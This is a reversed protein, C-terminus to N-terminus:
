QDVELDQYIEKEVDSLYSELLVSENRYDKNYFRDDLKFKAKYAQIDANLKDMVEQQRIYLDIIKESSNIVKM